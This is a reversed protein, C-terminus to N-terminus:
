LEPDIAKQIKHNYRLHYMDAVTKKIPKSEFAVEYETPDNGPVEGILHLPSQPTIIDTRIAGDSSTTIKKISTISFELENIETSRIKKGSEDVPFFSPEYSFHTPKRNNELVQWKNKPELKLVVKHFFRCDSTGAIATKELSIENVYKIEGKRIPPGTSGGLHFLKSLLTAGSHTHDEPFDVAIKKFEDRIKKNIQTIQYGGQVEKLKAADPDWKHHSIPESMLIFKDLLLQSKKDCKEYDSIIDGALAIGITGTSSLGPLKVEEYQIVMKNGRIKAIHNILLFDNPPNEYKKVGLFIKADFPLKTPGKVDLHTVIDAEYDERMKKYLYFFPAFNKNTEPQVQLDKGDCSINVELEEDIIAPWFFKECAEKINKAIGNSDHQKEEDPVFGVIMISTGTEDVNFSNIGFESRKTEAKDNWLSLTQETDDHGFYIDGGKSKNNEDLYDTLMASGSLRMSISTGDEEWYDSLKSFFFAIKTESNAWIVSKGYGWSGTQDSHDGSLTMGGSRCLALYRNGKEMNRTFKEQGILGMTNSDSITLIRLPKDPDKLDSPNFNQLYKKTNSDDKIMRYADNLESLNGADCFKMKEDGLLDVIDFRVVVKGKEDKKSDRCNGVIERVFREMATLNDSQVTHLESRDYNMQGYKQRIVWKPESM